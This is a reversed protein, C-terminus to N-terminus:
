KALEATLAALAHDIKSADQGGGQAVDDKGGGGGGLVKTAARVLMGAKAGSTRAAENTMAVVIPRGNSTGILVVVAADAGLRDRVATALQKLDDASDVDGLNALVVRRGALDRAGAVLEPVRASLAQARYRAIEKEAAKLKELTATIRDQLQNAPAKFQESLSHVLAREAAQHRFAEYGVFAEVRRNGSGVSQEGLLTLSGIQASNGVHTGGCLERSWDGNIEVVRVVDGYNEGFLAMAGLAKAEEIPMERTLVEHHGLIAQNAVDEIESRTEPSLQQAWAFDFRLYGAKNFSGRQTAEKGLLQHLAAHVIHTASHAQEGAHRRVADVEALALAGQSVEGERVIAKHVSLGKVPRQVDLVELVFGDGRIVGTDAAQGGAEAYFPTEDLVLEIESGASASQTAQGGALIGRVSSESTLETYGTFFTEGAERLSAYASVDVGGLKKALSDAKARTRQEQMLARFGNEDVSVGAEEAMELTLDIPFGYTDHLAFAEAGSLSEGRSKAAVVSEELRATGSAITRLFSKEEAVAIRRIREFDEAINPYTGGMADKSVEVLEGVVPREVGLLRMARIARRLLRRLVYGRGENSPTVGDGILMVSSRIHDSVVRMRVDDANRPDAPDETGGYEKGSLEAAKDLVARVQDTEYFNEVGQLLMALREVGLGTDINKTPLEGRIEFDDKGIGEGREYQMFVLNWIEIYRNDDAAPGGDAGYEPGRDYFIESDPGAPGGPQGASWYNDKMGMRQIREAPFGVTKTWIEFSEDDTEFITVWLRDPDLGFGGKELPSTLLEWAFPIAKEKFYDGFSFNGAMQFFTGHRATKGVEDIDLTRICKQISTARRYPAKQEGLFYPIFPVMGAITFMISPDNSVLSASPVVTHGKSEFFDLWRKTIEETKM